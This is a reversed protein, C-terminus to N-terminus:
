EQGDEVNCIVVQNIDEILLFHLLAKSIVRNLQPDKNM